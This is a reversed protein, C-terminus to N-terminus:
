PKRGTWPRPIKHLNNWGHPWDRRFVLFSAQPWLALIDTKSRYKKEEENGLGRASSVTREPPKTIMASHPAGSEMLAPFGSWWKWSGPAGLLAGAHVKNVWSSASYCQQETLFLFYHFVFQINEFFQSKMHSGKKEEKKKKQWFVRNLWPQDLFHFLILLDNRIVHFKTAM